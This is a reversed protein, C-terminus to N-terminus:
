AAPSNFNATDYGHREIWSGFVPTLGLGRLTDLPAAEWLTRELARAEELTELEESLHAEGKFDTRVVHYHKPKRNPITM